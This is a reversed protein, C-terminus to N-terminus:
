QFSIQILFILKGIWFDGKPPNLPSKLPQKTKVALLLPIYAHRAILFCSTLGPDWFKLQRLFNQEQQKISTYYILKIGESPTPVLCREFAVGQLPETYLHLYIPSLEFRGHAKLSVLVSLAVTPPKPRASARFDLRLYAHLFRITEENPCPNSERWSWM